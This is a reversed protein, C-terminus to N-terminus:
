LKGEKLDSFYVQDSRGIVRVRMQQPKTVAMM